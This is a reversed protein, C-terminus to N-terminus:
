CTRELYPIVTQGNHNSCASATDMDMPDQFDTWDLLFLQLILEFM